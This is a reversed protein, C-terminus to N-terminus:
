STKFMNYRMCVALFSFYSVTMFATTENNQVRIVKDIDYLLCPNANDRVNCTSVNYYTVVVTKSM